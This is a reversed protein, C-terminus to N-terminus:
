RPNIQQHQMENANIHYTFPFITCTKIDKLFHMQNLNSLTIM